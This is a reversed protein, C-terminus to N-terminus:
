TFRSAVLGAAITFMVAAIILDLVRWAAARAFVPALLRAGFGLVAFWIASALAAGLGFTWNAPSAFTGSLAGVLIVTDLYVHPNLFTFAAIKALAGRLPEGTDEAARLAEPRLARRLATAGYWALFAAGGWTAVALLTANSQILTGVGAVGLMILAFDAAACFAVLPGVHRRLIGQRLVYANQAGIAVILSAGLLFGQAAALLAETM